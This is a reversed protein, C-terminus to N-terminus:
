HIDTQRETKLTHIKCPRLKKFQKVQNKVPNNKSFSTWIKCYRNGVSNKNQYNENRKEHNQKKFQEVLKNIVCFLSATELM